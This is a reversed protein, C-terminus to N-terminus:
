VNTKHSFELIIFEAPRAVAMGIEINIIGQQIEQDTTTTTGIQVFFAESMKTGTLAGAQWYEVLFSTIMAKIKVWTHANNAEFVFDELSTQISEEVFNFFRRVAIYRWENSNGDLTRAGWVVHGKGTFTRIANVSKGHNLDVNLDDQEQNSLDILPKVIGQLTMNAPSKWVGRDRDNKCYLGAMAGQAPVQKMLHQIKEKIEAYTPDTSFLNLEATTKRKSLNQAIGNIYSFLLSYDVLNEADFDQLLQDRTGTVQAVDMLSPDTKLDSISLATLVGDYNFWDTAVPYKNANITGIYTTSGGSVNTTELIGILRILKQVVSIFYSNSKLANVETILSSSSTPDNELTELSTISEVFVKFVNKLNARKQNGTSGTYTTKATNYRNQLDQLTTGGYENSYLSLDNDLDLVPQAAVDTYGTISEFSVDFPDANLIWPYYLAGYRRVEEGVTIWNRMDSVNSDPAHFDLIVFKDQENRCTTILQNVLTSYSSAGDFFNELTGANDYQAHLDPISVLTVEDLTPILNIAQEIGDLASSNLHNTQFTGASIIHCPGGGNLFYLYLCDYLYFRKDPTVSIGSPTTTVSYQPGYGGGFISEFEALSQIREPQAIANETFGVFLPVATSVAGISVPLVSQEKIYIGPTKYIM